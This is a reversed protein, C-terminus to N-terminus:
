RLINEFLIILKSLLQKDQKTRFIQVQEFERQIRM